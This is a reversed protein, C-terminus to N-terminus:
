KFFEANFKKRNNALLNRQYLLNNHEHTYAFSKLTYPM